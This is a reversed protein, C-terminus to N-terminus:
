KLPEGCKPCHTAKKDLITIECKLCRQFIIGCPKCLPVYSVTVEEECYPCVCKEEKAPKQKNQEKM